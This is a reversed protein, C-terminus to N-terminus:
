LRRLPSTRQFILLQMLLPLILFWVTAFLADFAPLVLFDTFIWQFSFPFSNAFIYFVIVQIGTSTFSFLFTMIPLTSFSDAFFNWRQKYIIATTMTFNLAYLGFRVNSALLDLVLGCALSIWLASLYSKQYYVLIFFSPFYFLKIGPFLTPSFITLVLVSVFALLLNKKDLSM